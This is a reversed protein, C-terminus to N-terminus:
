LFSTTWHNPMDPDNLWWKNKIKCDFGNKLKKKSSLWFCKLKAFCVFKLSKNQDFV